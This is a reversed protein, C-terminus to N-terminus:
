ISPSMPGKPKRGFLEGYEDPLESLIDELEGPSVAERLVQMVAQAQEVARHYRVAARASVRSYFDELLFRETDRGKLFYEKLEKPLQAALDEREKRSLRESLTELTAETVKAAEDLSEFGGLKKVQEIFEQYRM